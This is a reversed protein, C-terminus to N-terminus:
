KKDNFFSNLFRLIPTAFRFFRIELNAILRSNWEIFRDYLSMKKRYDDIQKQYLNQALTPSDYIHDVYSQMSREAHDHVENGLLTEKLENALLRRVYQFFDRITQNFDVDNQSSLQIVNELHNDSIYTSFTFSKHQNIQNEIFLNLSFSEKNQRHERPFFETYDFTLEIKKSAHLYIASHSIMFTDKNYKQEGTPYYNFQALFDSINHCEEKFTNLYEPNLIEM